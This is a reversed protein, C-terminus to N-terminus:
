MWIWLIPRHQQLKTVEERTVATNKLVLCRLRPLAYLHKLGADTIKSNELDLVQCEKLGAMAALEDDDIPKKRCDIIKRGKLQADYGQWDSMRALYLVAEWFPSLVGLSSNNDNAIARSAAFALCVFILLFGSLAAIASGVITTSLVGWLIVVLCFLVLMVFMGIGLYEMSVGDSAMSRIWLQFGAPRDKSQTHHRREAAQVPEVYGCTQCVGSDSYSGGCKACRVKNSQYAAKKGLQTTAQFDMEMVNRQGTLSSIPDSGASGSNPLVETASGPQIKIPQQCKPCVVRKGIQEDRVRLKQNCVEYSKTAENFGAINDCRIEISM